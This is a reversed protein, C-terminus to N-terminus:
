SSPKRSAWASEEHPNRRYAPPPALPSDRSEVRRSPDEGRPVLHDLVEADIPTTWLDRYSSGLMARHFGGAAYDAGPTVPETRPKEQPAAVAAAALLCASTLGRLAPSHSM